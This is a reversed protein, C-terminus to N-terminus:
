DGQVRGNRWSTVMRDWTPRFQISRDLVYRNADLASPAYRFSFTITNASGEEGYIWWESRGSRRVKNPVGYVIHVMGRDTRWGEQLGSFYRNAEEVRGYYTAILNAGRDEDNGCDLWFADLAGKPDDGTTMREYESRSTVYRTTEILYPVARVHPFDARRGHLILEFDLALSRLVSTGEPVVFAFRGEADAKLTDIPQAELGALPDSFSTFPPSPMSPEPVAQLWMWAMGGPGQLYVTDGVAVDRGAIPWGSANFRNITQHAPDLEWTQLVEASRNVDRILVETRLGDGRAATSDVDRVAFRWVADLQKPMGPALTDQLFWARAGTKIQVSATFPLEPADRLYLLESRDLRVFLAASDASLRMVSVEPHLLRAEWDYPKRAATQVSPLSSSCGAVVAACMVGLIWKNMGSIESSEAAADALECRVQEFHFMVAPFGNLYTTFKAAIHFLM